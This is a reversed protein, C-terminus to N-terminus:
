LEWHCPRTRANVTYVQYESTVSCVERLLKNSAEPLLRISLTDLATIDQSSCAGLVHWTNRDKGMEDELESIFCKSDVRLHKWASNSSAQKPVRIYPTTLFLSLLFLFSFVVLWELPSNCSLVVNSAAIFYLVLVVCRCSFQVFLPLPM